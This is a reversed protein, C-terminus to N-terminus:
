KIKALKIITENLDNELNKIEEESKSSNLKKLIEQKLTLLKEREYINIINDVTKKDIDQDNEKTMIETIKGLAEEDNLFM